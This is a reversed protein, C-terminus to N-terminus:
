KIFDPFVKNFNKITGGHDLYVHRRKRYHRELVGFSDVLDFIIPVGKETRFVRGLYQIFYEQLDAAVILANLKPHNFGVGAKQVTAILVRSTADFKRKMGVLSTVDIGIEQLKAVLCEVHSVRKCLVLFCRDSFHEILRVILENREESAAQSNLVSNWDLKGFRTQEVTPVFGTKVRYVLHDRRLKRYIIDPGFYSFLLSDMGDPRSPTASLGIAYRPSVFHLSNSLKETGILHLEDVILMGVHRFTDRGMKPINIANAIYFHASPNVKTKTKVKQVIANPCFKLISGEWQDMLVLRSIVVLVPMRISLAINIATITKGGGTFLSIIATGRKNLMKLAERKVEKQLSRLVGAFKLKLQPFDKRPRRSLKLIKQAFYLPLYVDNEEIDFASVVKDSPGYKTEKPSFQLKQVINQRAEESLDELSSKISM